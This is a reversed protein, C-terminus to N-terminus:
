AGGINDVLIDRKRLRLAGDGLLRYQRSALAPVPKASLIKARHKRTWAYRQRVVNLASTICFAARRFVIQDARTSSDEIARTRARSTAAPTSGARNIRRIAQAASSIAHASVASRWAAASAARDRFQKDRAARELM